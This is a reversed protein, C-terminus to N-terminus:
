WRILALGQLKEEVSFQMEWRVVYGELWVLTNTTNELCARLQAAPNRLTFVQKNSM